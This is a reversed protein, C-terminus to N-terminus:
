SCRMCKCAPHHEVTPPREYVERPIVPIVTVPIVIDKELSVKGRWRRTADRVAERQRARDKYM